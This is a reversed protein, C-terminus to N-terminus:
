ILDVKEPADLELAKEVGVGTLDANLRDGVNLGDLPRKPAPVGINLLLTKLSIKLTLPNTMTFSSCFPAPPGPRVREAAGLEFGSNFRGDVLLTDAAAGM